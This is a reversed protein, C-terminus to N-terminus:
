ASKSPVSVKSSSYNKFHQIRVTFIYVSMENYSIHKSAPVLDHCSGPQFHDHSDM